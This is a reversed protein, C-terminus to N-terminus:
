LFFGRALEDEALFINELACKRLGADAITTTEEAIEVESIRQGIGEHSELLLELGLTGVIEDGHEVRSAAHCEFVASRVGEM